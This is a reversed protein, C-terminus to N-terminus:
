QFVYILISDIHRSTSWFTDELTCKTAPNSPMEILASKLCKEKLPSIYIYM